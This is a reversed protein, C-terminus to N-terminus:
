DPGPVRGQSWWGTRTSNATRSSTPSRVTRRTWRTIIAPPSAFQSTMRCARMPVEAHLAPRPTQMRVMNADQIGTTLHEAETIRGDELKLRLAVLVPEGETEMM